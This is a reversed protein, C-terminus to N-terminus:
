LFKLFAFVVMLVCGLLFSMVCTAECIELLRNYKSLVLGFTEKQLRHQEKIAELTDKDMKRFQILLIYLGATGSLICVLMTVLVLLFLWRNHQLEPTLSILLALLAASVSVIHKIFESQMSRIIEKLEKLQQLSSNISM